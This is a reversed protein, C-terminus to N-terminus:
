PSTIIESRRIGPYLMQDGDQIGDWAFCQQGDRLVVPPFLWPNCAFKEALVLGMKHWYHSAGGKLCRWGAGRRKSSLKPEYATEAGCIPCKAPHVPYYGLPPDPAREGGAELYARVADVAPCCGALHCACEANKGVRHHQPRVNPGLDVAYFYGSVSVSAEALALQLAEPQTRLALASLSQTQVPKPNNM